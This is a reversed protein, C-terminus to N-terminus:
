DSCHRRASDYVDRLRRASFRARLARPSDSGSRSLAYLCGGRAAVYICSPTRAAERDPLAGDFDGRIGRSSELAYADARQAPSNARAEEEPSRPACTRGELM